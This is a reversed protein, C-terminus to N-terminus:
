FKNALELIIDLRFNDVLDKLGAILKTETTPIEQILELICTDDLAKSAEVLRIRWDKSMMKLDDSTLEVHYMVTELVEFEQQQYIYRVGLHHSIRELLLREPFPKYILDDCGAAFIADREEEFASATLAIIIIPSSSLLENRELSKARIEVERAKIAKTAAYGDMIPMLMDMCILHPQWTEWAAIAEKGNAVTLVEFGVYELMKTVLERNEIIDDVVLIRFQPQNIELGIIEPLEIKLLQKPQIKPLKVPIKFAFISGQKYTSQVEINGGMVQVFKQSIALGLGTGEMADRGSKTQIFPTFLNDIEESSIGIGTDEIEFYVTCLQSKNKPYIEKNIENDLQLNNAVMIRLIVRGIKTFKIANGILNILIQRLKSEDTQIYEPLDQGKEVILELGKSKARYQLMEYIIEIFDDLRFIKEKLTIQGSEIKSMSLVDNILQLLHNGSRHITQVNVYNEQALKKDHLMVQTFGLIINLPTRLEHSIKSLFEGKAKSASEAAILAEQLVLEIHKAQTIDRAVFIVTQKDIPSITTSFWTKKDAIILSYEINISTQEKLSYQLHELFFDAESKSFVEHLTRGILEDAPKYLFQPQTQVIKLYKGSIDLVIILETMAQFLALLENQTAKLEATRENVRNELESNISELANFTHYFKEAMQNFLQALISMEQIRYAELNLELVKGEFDAAAAKKALSKAANSLRMIPQSIWRATLVGLSSALVLTLLSLLITTRKSANIEAMFDSEPVVVLILWDLGYSDKWPNVKAFYKKGNIAFNLSTAFKIKSISGFNKILQNKTAKALPNALQNVAIRKAKGDKIVYPSENLSSAVLMGNREIIFTHGSESVKINRLFYSIESLILDVGIVGLFQKKQNYIPYSSSIAMVDPADQWSYIDSWIPKRKLVAENYWAADNPFAELKTEVVNTRNGDRDVAYIKYPKGVVKESIRVDGKEYGAGIFEGQLNGFNIYGLNFIQQQHWFYNGTKQFDQLNLMGLKIAQLNIQNVQQPIALYTDLKQYIRDSIDDQLQSVLNNVAIQGHRYSFYGVLTVATFTQVVFPVSLVMPLTMVSKFRGFFRNLERVFM